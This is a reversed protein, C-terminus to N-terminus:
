RRARSEITGALSRSTSAVVVSALRLSACAKLAIAAARGLAVRLEAGARAPVRGDEGV